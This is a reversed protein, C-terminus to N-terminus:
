RCTECFPLVMKPKAGLISVMKGKDFAHNNSKIPQINFAHILKPELFFFTGQM